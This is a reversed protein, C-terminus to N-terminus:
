STTEPSSLYAWTAVGRRGGGHPSVWSGACDEECEEETCTACHEWADDAGDDLHPGGFVVFGGGGAVLACEDCEEAVGSLAPEAVHTEGMSQLAVAAAAVRFGVLDHEGWAFAAWGDGTDLILIETVLQDATM